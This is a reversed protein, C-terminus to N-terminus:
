ILGLGSLFIIFICIPAFVRMIWLLPRLYWGSDNQWNTITDQIIEKDLWWGVFLSILLACIPMMYRSTLHDLFDFINDGWLTVDGLLGLSLSCVVGLGLAWISSCLVATKRSMKWEEQLYSVPVEFISMCSTIGALTILLFFLVGLIYGGPMQLFVRPLTVFVLSSGQEPEIGFSFCAPFIVIGAMIAIITDLGAVTCATKGVKTNDGLYSGYAILIGMACSLSFFAQGLADIWVQGTVKSWDPVFLYSMGESFGPQFCSNIVLLLLIVALVPMMINSAREIGKQVGGLLIGANIVIAAITWLLPEIPSSVFAGFDDGEMSNIAALYTYRLTWGSLVVYFGLILIAVLLSLIGVWHWKTGPAVKKFSTVINSHASRGIVFESVMLPIGLLLVSFVYILLFAAGGDQGTIYPFRWINGFGVASGVAAAIGGMRTAFTSRNEM